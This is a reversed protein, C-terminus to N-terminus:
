DLSRATHGLCGGRKGGFSSCLLVVASGFCTGIGRVGRCRGTASPYGATGSVFANWLTDELEYEDTRDICDCALGTQNLSKSTIKGRTRGELVRPSYRCGFQLGGPGVMLPLIAEPVPVDSEFFCLFVVHEIKLCRM